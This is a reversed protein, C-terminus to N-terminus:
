GGKTYNDCQKHNKLHGNYSQEALALPYKMENNEPSEASCPHKGELVVGCIRPSCTQHFDEGTFYIYPYNEKLWSVCQFYRAKLSGPASGKKYLFGTLESALEADRPNASRLYDAIISLAQLECSQFYAWVLDLIYRGRRNRDFIIRAVLPLISKDKYINILLLASEDLVQDFADCLGDGAFGSALMWKLTEPRVKKCDIKKNKLDECVRAAECVREGLLPYLNLEKIVPLLLYLSAFSSNNLLDAAAERSDKAIDCFIQRFREGGAGYRINDLRGLAPSKAARM